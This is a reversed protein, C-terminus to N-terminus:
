ARLRVLLTAGTDSRLDPHEGELHIAYFDGTSLHIDGLAITGDIVFCEQIRTRISAPLSSGPDLRILCSESAGDPHCSIQKKKLGTALESGLVTWSGEDARVVHVMGPGTAGHVPERLAGREESHGSKCSPSSADITSAKIREWLEPPPRPASGGQELPSLIREWQAVKARLNRDRALAKRFAKLEPEPLTGLVYEAAKQDDEPVDAM